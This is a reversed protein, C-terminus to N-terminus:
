EGQIKEAVNYYKLFKNLERRTKEGGGCFEGNDKNFICFPYKSDRPKYIVIAKSCGIDNIYELTKLINM